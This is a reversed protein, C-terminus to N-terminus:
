QDIKPTNQSRQPANLESVMSVTAALQDSDSLASLKDMQTAVASNLAAVRQELETMAPSVTGFSSALSSVTNETRIQRDVVAAVNLQEPGYKPLLRLNAGVFIYRGLENRADVVDFIGVIDDVEAEHAPRSTSSRRETFLSSNALCSQFEYILVKKASSIAEASFFQLVVHRLADVNSSDRYCSVYALLENVVIKDANVVDDDKNATTITVSKSVPKCLESCVTKNASDVADDKAATSRTQVQRQEAGKGTSRKTSMTTSTATVTIAAAGTSTVAATSSSTARSGTQATYSALWAQHRERDCEPCLM